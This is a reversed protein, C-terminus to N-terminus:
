PEESRLARIAEGCQADFVLATDFHKRAVKSNGSARAVHGAAAHYAARLRKDKPAAEVAGRLLVAADRYQGSNLADLGLSAEPSPPTKPATLVDYAAKMASRVEEAASQIRSERYDGYLDPHFQKELRRYAEQVVDPDADHV